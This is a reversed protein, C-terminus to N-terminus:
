FKRNFRLKMRLYKNCVIDFNEIFIILFDVFIEKFNDYFDSGM